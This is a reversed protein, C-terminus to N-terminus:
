SPAPLAAQELAWAPAYDAVAEWGAQGLTYHLPRSVGQVRDRRRAGQLAQLEVREVLGAGRHDECAAILLM